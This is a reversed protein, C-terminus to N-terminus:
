QSQQHQTFTNNLIHESSLVNNNTQIIQNNLVPIAIIQNPINDHLLQKLSKVKM